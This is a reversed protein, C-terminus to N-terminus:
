TEGSGQLHFSSSENGHLSPLVQTYIQHIRDKEATSVVIFIRKPSPKAPHTWGQKFLDSVTTDLMFFFVQYPMLICESERFMYHIPSLEILKPANIKSTTVCDAGCFVSEPACQGHHCQTCFRDLVFGGSLLSTDDEKQAIQNMRMALTPPIRSMQTRAQVAKLRFRLSFNVVLSLLLHLVRFSYCIRISQILRASHESAPRVVHSRRFHCQGENCCLQNAYMPTPNTPGFLFFVNGMNDNFM